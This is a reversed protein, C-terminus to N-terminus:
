VNITQKIREIAHAELNTHQAARLIAKIHSPPLKPLQIASDERGFATFLQQVQIPTLELRQAETLVADHIYSDITSRTPSQEADNSHLYGRLDAIATNVALNSLHHQRATAAIQEWAAAPVCHNANTVAGIINASRAALPAARTTTNESLSSVHMMDGIARLQPYGADYPEDFM